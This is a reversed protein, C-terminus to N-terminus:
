RTAVDILGCVIQALRSEDLEQKSLYASAGLSMAHRRDEEGDRTTIVVVPLRPWREHVRRLLGM